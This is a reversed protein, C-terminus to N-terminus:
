HFNRYAVMGCLIRPASKITPCCSSTSMTLLDSIEGALWVTTLNCGDSVLLRSTIEAEKVLGKSRMRLLKLGKIIGLLYGAAMGDAMWHLIMVLLPGVGWAMVRPLAPHLSPQIQCGPAAPCLGATMTQKPKVVGHLARPLHSM